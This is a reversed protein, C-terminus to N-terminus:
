LICIVKKKKTFTITTINGLCNKKKVVTKLIKGIEANNEIKLPHLNKGVKIKTSKLAQM